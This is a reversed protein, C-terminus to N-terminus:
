KIILHPIIIIDPISLKLVLVEEDTLTIHCLKFSAGVPSHVAIEGSKEESEFQSTVDCFQKVSAWPMKCFYREM